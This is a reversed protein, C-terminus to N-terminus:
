VREDREKRCYFLTMVKRKRIALKYVEMSNMNWKIVINM